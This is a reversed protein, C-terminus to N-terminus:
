GERAAKFTRGGIATDPSTDDSTVDDLRRVVYIHPGIRLVAEGTAVVAREIAEGIPTLPDIDIPERHAAV